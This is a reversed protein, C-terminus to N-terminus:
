GVPGLESSAIACGILNRSIGTDNVCVKTLTADVKTQLDLQITQTRGYSYYTSNTQNLEIVHLSPDEIARLVMFTPSNSPQGCNYKISFSFRQWGDPLQTATILVPFQWMLPSPDPTTTHQNPSIPIPGIPNGDLETVLLQLAMGASSCPAPQATAAPTPVVPATVAPNLQLTVLVTPISAGYVTSTSAGYWISKIPNLPNVQDVQASAVIPIAMVVTLLIEVSHKSKDM